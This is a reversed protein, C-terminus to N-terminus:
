NKGKIYISTVISIFNNNELYDFCENTTSFVKIYTWKIASASITMMHKNKRMKQWDTTPMINNGDIIYMKSVGLTNISRIATCVNEINKTCQNELVCILTNCRHESANNAKNRLSTCKKEKEDFEIDNTKTKKNTHQIEFIDKNKNM